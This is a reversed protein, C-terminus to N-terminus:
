SGADFEIADGCANCLAEIRVRGDEGFAELFGCKRVIEEIGDDAVNGEAVIRDEIGGIAPRRDQRPRNVIIEEGLREVLEAGASDHSEDGAAVGHVLLVRRDPAIEGLAGVEDACYAKGIRGEFRIRARLDCGVDEKQM